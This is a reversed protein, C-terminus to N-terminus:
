LIFISKLSVYARKKFQLCLNQLKVKRSLCQWLFSSRYNWKNTPQSAAPTRQSLLIAVPSNLMLAGINSYKINFNFHPFCGRSGEVTCFQWTPIFMQLSKYISLSHRWHPPLWNGIKIEDRWCCGTKSQASVNFKSTPCCAPALLSLESVDPQERQRRGIIGWGGRKGQM